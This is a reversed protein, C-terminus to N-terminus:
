IRDLYDKCWSISSVRDDTWREWTSAKKYAPCEERFNREAYAKALSKSFNHAWMVGGAVSATIPNCILFGVMVLEKM